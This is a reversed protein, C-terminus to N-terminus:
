LIHTRMKLGSVVSGSVCTSPHRHGSPMLRLRASRTLPARSLVDLSSPVRDGGPTLSPPPCHPWGCGCHAQCFRPRSCGTLPQLTLEPPWPGGGRGPSPYLSPTRLQGWLGAQFLEIEPQALAASLSPALGLPQVGLGM